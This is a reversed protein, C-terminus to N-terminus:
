KVEYVRKLESTEDTELNLYKFSLNLEGEKSNEEWRITDRLLKYKHNAEFDDFITYLKRLVLTRTKQNNVAYVVESGLGIDQQFANQNDSDALATFILKKDNDEGYTLMAGGRSNVGVPIQLGTTM